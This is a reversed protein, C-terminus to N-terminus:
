FSSSFRRVQEFLSSMNPTRSPRLFSPNSELPLPRCVEVASHLSLLVAVALAAVNSQKQERGPAVPQLPFSSLSASQHGVSKGGDRERERWDAPELPNGPHATREYMSADAKEAFGIFNDDLFCPFFLPAVEFRRRPAAMRTAYRICSWEYSGRRVDGRTGLSVRRRRRGPLGNGALHVRKHCPHRGALLPHARTRETLCISVYLTRHSGISSFRRTLTSSLFPLSPFVCRLLHAFSGKYL